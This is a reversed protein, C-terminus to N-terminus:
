TERGYLRYSESNEEGIALCAGASPVLPRILTRKAMMKAGHVGGQDAKSDDRLLYPIGSAVATAYALWDSIHSYGPVVLTDM